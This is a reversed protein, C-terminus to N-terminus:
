TRRIFSLPPQRPPAPPHVHEAINTTPHTAMPSRPSPMLNNLADVAITQEAQDSPDAELWVM